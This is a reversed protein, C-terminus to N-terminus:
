KRVYLTMGSTIHILINVINQFIV